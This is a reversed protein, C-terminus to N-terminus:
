LMLEIFQDLTIHAFYEQLPFGELAGRLVDERVPLGVLKSILAADDEAGFYDGFFAIDAIRGERVNMHAEVRGCGPFRAAKQIDYAPSAGYNWEWTDYVEKRLAQAAARDAETLAYPHYDREGLVYDKMREWFAGIDMDEKLHPRVNTVRARVSAVGKSEIKETKVRLARAIIDLDSDFLITGHHMIRGRKIYQANGSFKAGRITMDNRGSLEAPVGLSRLLAVVPACFGSFDFGDKADAIFTFNLNGLDHYVAGGGSLRRVVRAGTERVFDPNIEERANQHKGVVITNENQWLMCYSKAPDMADFIYQELALNFFPNTSGSEIYVM